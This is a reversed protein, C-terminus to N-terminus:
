EAEDELVMSLWAARVARQEEGLLAWLQSLGQHISGDMPMLGVATELHERAAGLDEQMLAIMGLHFHALGFWPERAVLEEFQVQAGPLDEDRLAALASEFVTQFEEFRLSAEPDGHFSGIDFWFARSRECDDCVTKQREYVKEGRHELSLALPRFRGGCPCRQTGIYVLEFPWSGVAIADGIHTGREVVAPFGPQQTV